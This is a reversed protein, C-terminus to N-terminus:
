KLYVAVMLREAEHIEVRITSGTQAGLERLADALPAQNVRITVWPENPQPAGQTKFKYGAVQALAMAAKTASGTYSFQATREFGAPVHTAQFHKQAHQETTLSPANKADVIKALIRLEDRAEIAVARLEDIPHVPPKLM